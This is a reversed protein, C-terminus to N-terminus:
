ATVSNLVFGPHKTLWLDANVGVIPASGISQRYLNIAGLKSSSQWVDNGHRLEYRAKPSVNATGPNQVSNTAKSRAAVKIGCMKDLKAIGALVKQIQDFKPSEAALLKVIRSEACTRAHQIRAIRAAKASEAAANQKAVIEAQKTAIEQKRSAIMSQLETFTSM